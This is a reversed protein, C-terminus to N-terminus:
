SNPLSAAVPARPALGATAVYAVTSRVDARGKYVAVDKQVRYIALIVPDSAPEDQDWLSATGVVGGMKQKDIYRVIVFQLYLVM